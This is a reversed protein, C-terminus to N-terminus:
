RVVTVTGKEVKVMEGELQYQCTWIFVNGQQEIQNLTGDWGKKSDTTQFLAVGWRNYITFQYSVVDGYILPKFTDNLGDGNPSFANPVFFGTICAKPLVQISDRGICQNSDTVELWYLGATSVAITASQAGTNWQYKSFSSNAKLEITEYSCIATDAFLFNAPLPKITSIVFTDSAKCGRTDTALLSYTGLGSASYTSATSGDQWLYTTFSGSSLLQTGGACVYNKGAINVMPNDWVNLVVLTDSAVCGFSTTGTVVYNGQAKVVITAATSGTNWQYRAFGPGADLLASDGKCFNIDNGLSISLGANGSIIISDIAVTGCADTITVKYTGPANIVLMSDTSGTSWLYKSFGSGANVPVDPPFCAITDAGLQLSVAARNVQLSQRITNSGCGSNITAALTDIGDKLAVLTITTDTVAVQRFMLTDFSWSVPLLCGAARQAKCTFAGAGACIKAPIDIRLLSCDSANAACRLTTTFEAVREKVVYNKIEFDPVESVSVFGSSQELLSVKKTVVNASLNKCVVGPGSNGAAANGDSDVAMLFSSTTINGYGSFTRGTLLFGDGDKRLSKVDQTRLEPYKKAWIVKGDPEFKIIHLATDAGDHMLQTLLLKEDDTPLFYDGDVLDISFIVPAYHLNPSEFVYANQLQGNAALLNAVITNHVVRGTNEIITGYASAIYLQTGAKAIVPNTFQNDPSKLRNRWVLSGTALSFQAVDIYPLGEAKTYEAAMYIHDSDIYMNNALVMGAEYNFEKKWTFAGTSDLRALYNKTGGIADSSSMLLVLDGNPLEKITEIRFNAGPAGTIEKAWVLGGQLNYKLLFVKFFVTATVLLNGDTTALVNRSFNLGEYGKVWSINGSGNLKILVPGATVADYGTVVFGNDATRVGDQLFLQNEGNAIDLFFSKLCDQSKGTLPNCLIVVCWLSFYFWLSRM